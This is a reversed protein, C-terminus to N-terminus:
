GAPTERKIPAQELLVVIHEFNETLDGTEETAFHQDFAALLEDRLREVKRIADVRKKADAKVRDAASV